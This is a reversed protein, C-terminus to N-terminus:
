LSVEHASPSLVKDAEFPDPLYNGFPDFPDAEAAVVKCMCIFWFISEFSAGKRAFVFHVCDTPGFMLRSLLIFAKLVQPKSQDDAVSSQSRVAVSPRSGNLLSLQGMDGVLGAMLPSSPM